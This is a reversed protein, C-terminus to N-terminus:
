CGGIESERGREGCVSGEHCGGDKSGTQRAGGVNERQGEKADFDKAQKGDETTMQTM